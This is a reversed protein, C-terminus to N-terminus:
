CHLAWTGWAAGMKQQIQHGGEVKAMACQLSLCQEPLPSGSEGDKLHQSQVSSQVNMVPLIRFFNSPLYLHTNASSTSLPEVISLSSAMLDNLHESAM